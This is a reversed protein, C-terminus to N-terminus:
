FAYAACRRSSCRCRRRRGRRHAPHQLFWRAFATRDFLKTFNELSAGTPILQASSLTGLPNLAASVVFLIPFLAFVLALVGVLHRWGVQRLWGGKASGLRVVAERQDEATVTGTRIPIPESTESPPILESM